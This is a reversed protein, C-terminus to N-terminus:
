RMGLFFEPTLNKHLSLNIGLSLFRAASAITADVDRPTVMLADYPTKEAPDAGSLEGALTRADVVTPVGVSVVPVGLTSLSLEKRANGVGAGPEIGASSLQVNNGLRTVSGAALADVAIVCDPRLKECVARVLLASEAGTQGTVGPKLVWVRRLPPFLRLTEETFHATAFVGDATKPGLADPTVDPNGLGAVLVSGEEPLLAAIERSLVRPLEGTLAGADPFAGTELTVYEGVPKGLFAEGEESDVTIRTLRWGEGSMEKVRVGDPLPRAATEFRELAMDTRM